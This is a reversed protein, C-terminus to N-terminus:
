RAKTWWLMGKLMAKLNGISTWSRRAPRPGYAVATPSTEMVVVVEARDPAHVDELKRGVRVADLVM